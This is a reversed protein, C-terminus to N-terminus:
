RPTPVGKQVLIHREPTTTWTSGLTPRQTSSGLLCTGNLNHQIANCENSIRTRNGHDDHASQHTKSSIAVSPMHMCDTEGVKRTTSQIPSCAHTQRNTISASTHHHGAREFPQAFADYVHSPTSQCLAQLQAPAPIGCGLLPESSEHAPLAAM